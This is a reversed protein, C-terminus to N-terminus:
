SLDEHKHLLAWALGLVRNKPMSCFLLLYISVSFSSPFLRQTHVVNWCSVTIQRSICLGACVGAKCGGKGWGWAGCSLEDVTKKPATMTPFGPLNLSEGM